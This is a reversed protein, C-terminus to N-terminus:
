MKISRKLEQSYPLQSYKHQTQGAQQTCQGEAKDSTLLDSGAAPDSGWEHHHCMGQGPRPWPHRHYEVLVYLLLKELWPLCGLATLRGLETYFRIGTVQLQAAKMEEITPILAAGWQMQDRRKDKPTDQNKGRVKKFFSRIVSCYVIIHYIDM